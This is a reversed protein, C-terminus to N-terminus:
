QLVLPALDQAMKHSVPLRNRDGSNSTVVIVVGEQPYTALVAGHGFGEYGRTWVSTSGSPTRSVFWGYAISTTEREIHPSRLQQVSEPRLVRGAELAANWRYLDASTSYM